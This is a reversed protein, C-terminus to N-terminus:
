ERNAKGIKGIGSIRRQRERGHRLLRESRVQVYFEFSLASMKTGGHYVTFFSMKMSFLHKKGCFISFYVCFEHM